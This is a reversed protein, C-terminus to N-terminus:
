RDTSVYISAIHTTIESLYISQCVSDHRIIEFLNKESYISFDDSTIQVEDWSSISVSKNETIYDQEFILNMHYDKLILLGQVM